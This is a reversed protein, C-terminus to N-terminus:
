TNLIWMLMGLGNELNIKKKILVDKKKTSGLHNNITNPLYIM